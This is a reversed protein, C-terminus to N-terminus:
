LEMKQMFPVIMRNLIAAVLRLGARRPWPLHDIAFGSVEIEPRGGRVRKFHAAGASGNLRAGRDVAQGAFILSAIRYLADDVPRDMDYGVVPPTLVDGRHLAGSVAVIQGEADRAVRYHVLGVAHTMAIWRPTFVPNLPSYKGIYLQAYLDAIRQADGEVLEGVDEVSIAGSQELAAVKRLDNRTSNRPRWDRALDATVWIQRSPMLLWGDRKLSALLAPCSWNDVSRIAIIHRPFARALMTRIAPADQGAWDGHLNTSLLWNDVHVIRNVSLARLLWDAGAIVLRLAARMVGSVQVLDLEQRGYLIYASHPLCVYSDGMEGDNITVPFVRGGSRIARWVTRVNSVMAPVGAQAMQEIYSREADPVGDWIGPPPHLPDFLIPATM